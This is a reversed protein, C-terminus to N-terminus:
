QKRFLEVIKQNIDEEGVNIILELKQSFTIADVFNNFEIENHGVSFSIKLKEM